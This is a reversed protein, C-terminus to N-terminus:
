KWYNRHEIINDFWELATQLKEVSFDPFLDDSFYLEAYSIWRTMFWSLRKAMEGKTRIVLEIPPLDWFDMCSSLEENSIHSAQPHQALFSNVGRLIEDNGGYNVALVFYKGSESPYKKEQTHFYDILSQPLWEQSGVRKFWIKYELLFEHIDRTITQYLEYLYSLERPSREQINETSAWRITVIQIDTTSFCYKILKNAMDFWKKHGIIGPLWRKKAWTRNGDPIIGLHQPYYM